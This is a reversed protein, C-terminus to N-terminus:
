ANEMYDDIGRYEAQVEPNLDYNARKYAEAIAAFRDKSGRPKDPHHVQSLKRYRRKRDALEAPWANSSVLLPSIEKWLTAVDSDPQFAAQVLSASASSSASSAAVLKRLAQGAQSTVMVAPIQPINKRAGSPPKPIHLLGSADNAVVVARAGLRELYSIKQLFSCRGRNVLVVKGAVEEANQINDYCAQAPEAVVVDVPSDFLSWFARRNASRDAPPAPVM